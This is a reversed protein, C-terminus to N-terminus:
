KKRMPPIELQNPNNELDSKLNGGTLNQFNQAHTMARQQSNPNDSDKDFAMFMIYEYLAPIYNANLLINTNTDTVDTPTASYIMEITGTGDNPPYVFFERPSAGDYMFHIVQTAQTDVAWGPYCRDFIEKNVLTINRGADIGSTGMNRTIQIIRNAATPIQQYTGSSLGMVIRSTYASHDITCITRVGMNYYDLLNQSTWRTNSTDILQSAVETLLKSVLM